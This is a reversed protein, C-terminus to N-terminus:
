RHCPLQCSLRPREVLTRLAQRRQVRRPTSHRGASYPTTRLCFLFNTPRPAALSAGLMSTAILCHAEYIEREAVAARRPGGEHVVRDRFPDVVDDPLTCASGYNFLPATSCALALVRALHSSACRLRPSLFLSGIRSLRYIANTPQEISFHAVKKVIEM